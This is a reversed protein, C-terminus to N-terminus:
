YIRGDENSWGVITEQGITMELDGPVDAFIRQGGAELHARRFDGQFEIATVKALLQNHCNAGPGGVRLRSPRFYLGFPRHPPRAALALKLPRGDPGQYRDPVPTVRLCCSDGLFSFVFANAPTNFITEPTDVQELRGRNLIAIRDSLALAEGQDHTVYVATFEIEQHLCKIETRLQLRLSQDLASLPEDFLVIAPEVLLARALAVRQKQGGSLEQPYRSHFHELQVMALMRDIRRDIESKPMGRIRLGYALNGAVTKHPFLAGSQFVTATDRKYASLHNVIQGKIRIQGQDPTEFGGIMRQLTTKGSGSPGLLTLFEGKRVELTVGDVATVGAFRKSVNELSLSIPQSMAM